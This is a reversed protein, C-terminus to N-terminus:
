QVFDLEVVKAVDQCKMSMKRNACFTTLRRRFNWASRVLKLAHAPGMWLEHSALFKSFISYFNWFDKFWSMLTDMMHLTMLAKKQYIYWSQVVNRSNKLIIKRNKSVKKPSNRVNKGVKIALLNAMKAGIAVNSCKYSVESCQRNKSYYITPTRGCIAFKSGNSFFYYWWLGIQSNPDFNVNSLFSEM